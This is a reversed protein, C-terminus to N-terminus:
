STAVIGHRECCESLLLNELTGQRVQAALALILTSKM